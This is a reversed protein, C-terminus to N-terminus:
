MHVKPTFRGDHPSPAEADMGAHRALGPRSPTLRTGTTGQGGLIEGRQWCVGIPGVMFEFNLIRYMHIVVLKM